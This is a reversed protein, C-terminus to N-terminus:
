YRTMIKTQDLLLAVWHGFEDRLEVYDAREEISRGLMRKYKKVLKAKEKRKLKSNLDINRIMLYCHDIYNYLTKTCVLDDNNFMLMVLVHMLRGDKM